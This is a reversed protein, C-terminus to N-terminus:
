SSFVNKQGIKILIKVM